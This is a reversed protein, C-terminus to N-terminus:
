AEKNAVEDIEELIDRGDAEICELTDICINGFGWNDGQEFNEDIQDVLYSLVKAKQKDTMKAFKTKIEDDFYAEIDDENMSIIQFGTVENSDQIAKIAEEKTM